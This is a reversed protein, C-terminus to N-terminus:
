KRRKERTSEWEELWRKCAHEILDDRTYPDRGDAKAEDSLVRAAEKMRTWIDDGMKLSNRTAKRSVPVLSLRTERTDPLLPLAARPTM